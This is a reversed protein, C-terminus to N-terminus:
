RGIVGINESLHFSSKEAIERKLQPILELEYSSEISVDLGGESNKMWEVKITGQITNIRARAWEMKETLPSFYIQDFGPAAPRVGAIENVFFQAPGCGIGHCLSTNEKSFPSDPDFFEPWTSLEQDVMAGWYYNIIDFAWSRLNINTAAQILVDYLFPSKEHMFALPTFPAVNLTAAALFQNISSSPIIGANMAFFNSEASYTSSQQGKLSWDAFLNREPNWCHSRLHKSIRLMKNRCSEAEDELDLYTYIWSTSSLMRLYIANVSTFITAADLPADDPIQSSLVAISGSLLEQENEYFTYFNCLEKLTSLLIEATEMDNTHLLYQQLWIAWYMSSEGVSYYYSSPYVSPLEGTEYQGRSFEILAQRSQEYKGNATMAYISQLAADRLFQARRGSPSDMFGYESCSNLTSLSRQWINNIKMNPCEFKSATSDSKQLALLQVDNINIECHGASLVFVYRMGVPFFDEWNNDGEKLKIKLARRGHLTHLSRPIGDNFSEGYVVFIITEQPTDVSIRVCGSRIEGLDYCLFQQPSLTITNGGEQNFAEAKFSCSQLFISADAHRNHAVATFNL